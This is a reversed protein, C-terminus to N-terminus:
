LCPWHKHPRWVSEGSKDCAQRMGFKRFEPPPLLESSARKGMMVTTQPRRRGTRRCMEDVTNVTEVQGALTQWETGYATAAQEGPELDIRRLWRGYVAAVLRGDLHGMQEAVWETPEGASVMMSAYTHRCQYPYRYRVGAAKLAYGWLVRLRQSNQWRDNIRPNLFVWRAANGTLAKQAKLVALAPPLLTVWRARRGKTNTFSNKSFALRVCIRENDLDVDCWRLAILEGTRLGTWMAFMFINRVQGHLQSLVAAREEADLPDAHKAASEYQPILTSPLPEDFNPEGSSDLAVVKARKPKTPALELALNRPVLGEEVAIDLAARLPTMVNSIRSDSLGQERLAHRFQILRDKTLEAPRLGGLVPALRSSVVEKHTHLTNHRSPHEKAYRNLFIQLLDRVTRQDRSEEEQKKELNEKVKRSDPFHHELKFANHKIADLVVMRKAVAALVAGQTPPGKITQTCRRGDWMFEVQVAKSSRVSVGAPIPELPNGDLGIFHTAKVPLILSEDLRKKAM